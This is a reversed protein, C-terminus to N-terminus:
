VARRLARRRSMVAMPRTKSMGHVHVTAGDEGKRVFGMATHSTIPTPKKPAGDRPDIAM